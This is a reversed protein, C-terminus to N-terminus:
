KLVMEIKKKLEIMEADDPKISLAVNCSDLAYSYYRPNNMEEAFEYNNKAYEKAHNFRAMDLVTHQNNAEPIVTDVSVPPVVSAAPSDVFV